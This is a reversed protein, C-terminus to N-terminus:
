DLLDCRFHRVTAGRILNCPPRSSVIYGLGRQLRLQTPAIVGSHSRCHGRCSNRTCWYARHLYGITATIDEGNHSVNHVQKEKTPKFFATAFTQCGKRQKKATKASASKRFAARLKDSADNVDRGLTWSSRTLTPAMTNCNGTCACTTCPAHVHQALHSALAPPPSWNGAM